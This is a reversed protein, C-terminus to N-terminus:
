EPRQNLASPLFDRAVLLGKSEYLLGPEVFPANCPFCRGAVDRLDCHPADFTCDAEQNTGGFRKTHSWSLKDLDIRAVRRARM